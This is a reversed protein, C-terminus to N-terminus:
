CFNPNLCSLRELDPVRGRRMPLAYFDISSFATAYKELSFQITHLSKYRERGKHLNRPYQILTYLELTSTLCELRVGVGGVQSVRVQSGCVQSVPFVSSIM